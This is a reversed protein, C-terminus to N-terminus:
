IGRWGNSARMLNRAQHSIQAIRAGPYDNAKKCQQQKAGHCQADIPKRANFHCQPNIANLQM